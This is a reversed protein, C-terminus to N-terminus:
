LIRQLILEGTEPEEKKQIAWTAVWYAKLEAFAEEASVRGGKSAPTELIEFFVDGISLNADKLAREMAPTRSPAGLGLMRSLPEKSVDRGAFGTRLTFGGDTEDASFDPFTALSGVPADEPKVGPVPAAVLNITQM